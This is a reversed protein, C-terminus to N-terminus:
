FLCSLINATQAQLCTVSYLYKLIKLDHCMLWPIVELMSQEEFIAATNDFSCTALVQGFEPHAWTVRWVSGYHTQFIFLWKKYFWTEILTSFLSARSCHFFLRSFILVITVIPFPPSPVNECAHWFQADSKEWPPTGQANKHWNKCVQLMQFTAFTYLCHLKESSWYFIRKFTPHMLM